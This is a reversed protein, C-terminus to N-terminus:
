GMYPIATQHYECEFRAENLLFERSNLMHGRECAWISINLEKRRTLPVSITSKGFRSFAMM